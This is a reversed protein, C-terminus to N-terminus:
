LKKKLSFKDGYKKRIHNFESQAKEYEGSMVLDWADNYDNKMQIRLLPRFKLLLIALCIIVIVVIKGVTENNSNNM